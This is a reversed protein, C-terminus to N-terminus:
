SLLFSIVISQDFTLFMAPVFSGCANSFYIRSIIFEINKQYLPEFWEKLGNLDFRSPCSLKGAHFEKLFASLTLDLQKAKVGSSSKEEKYFLSAWIKLGERSKTPQILASTYRPLLTDTIFYFNHLHRKYDAWLSIFEPTLAKQDILEGLRPLINVQRFVPEYQSKKIIKEPVKIGLPVFTEEILTATDESVKETYVSFFSEIRDILPSVKKDNTIKNLELDILHLTVQEDSLLHLDYSPLNITQEAVRWFTDWDANKIFELWGTPEFKGKNSELSGPPEFKGNDTMSM